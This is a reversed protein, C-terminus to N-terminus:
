LKKANQSKAWRWLYRISLYKDRPFDGFPTMIQLEQRPLSNPFLISVKQVITSSNNIATTPQQNDTTRQRNGEVQIRFQFGSVCKLARAASPASLASVREFSPCYRPPAVDPFITLKNRPKIQCTARAEDPGRGM